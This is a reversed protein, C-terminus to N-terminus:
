TIQNPSPIKGLRRTQVRVVEVWEVGVLWGLIELPQSSWGLSWYGSTSWVCVREDGDHHGEIIEDAETM